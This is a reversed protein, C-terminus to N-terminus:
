NTLLNVLSPLGRSFDIWVHRFRQRCGPSQLAKVISFPSHLLLTARRVLAVGLHGSAQVRCFVSFGKTELLITLVEMRAFDRLTCWSSKKYLKIPIKVLFCLLNLILKMWGTNAERTCFYITIKTTYFYPLLYEHIYTDHDILLVGLFLLHNM